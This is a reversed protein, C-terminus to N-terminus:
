DEEGGMFIERLLFQADQLENKCEAVLRSAEDYLVLADELTLEEDSMLESIESLRKMSPEFVYPKKM